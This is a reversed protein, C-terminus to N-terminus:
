ACVRGAGPVVSLSAPFGLDQGCSRRWTWGQGLVRPPNFARRPATPLPSPPPEVPSLGSVCEARRAQSCAKASGHGKEQPAREAERLARAQAARGPHRGERVAEQLAPHRERDARKGQDTRWGYEFTRYEPIHGAGHPACFSLAVRESEPFYRKGKHLSVHEPTLSTRRATSSAAISVLAV